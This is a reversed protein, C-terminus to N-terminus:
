LAETHQGVVPVGKVMAVCVLGMTAGLLSAADIGGSIEQALDPLVDSLAEGVDEILAFETIGPEAAREMAFARLRVLTATAGAMTRDFKALTRADPKGATM